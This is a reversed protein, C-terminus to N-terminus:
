CPAAALGLPIFVKWPQDDWQNQGIRGGAMVRGQRVGGTGSTILLFLFFLTNVSGKIKFFM